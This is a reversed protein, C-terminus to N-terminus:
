IGALRIERKQALPVEPCEKNVLHTSAYVIHENDPLFYACTTRGMGTSIMPPKSDKFTEESNMLFMQDCQM